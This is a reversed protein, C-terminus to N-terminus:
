KKQITETRDAATDRTNPSNNDIVNIIKTPM